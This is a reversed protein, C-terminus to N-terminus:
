KIKIIGLFKHKEDKNFIYKIIMINEKGVDRIIREELEVELKIEEGSKLEKKYGEFDYFDATSAKGNRYVLYSADSTIYVSKDSNNKITYKMKHNKYDKKVDKIEINKVVNGRDLETEADPFEFQIGDKEIEEDIKKEIKEIRNIRNYYSKEEINQINLKYLGLIMIFLFLVIFMTIPKKLIKLIKNKLLGLISIILFEIKDVIFLSVVPITAYFIIIKIINIIVGLYNGAYDIKFLIGSIFIAAIFVIIDLVIYKIYFKIVNIIYQNLNETKGRIVEKLGKYLNNSVFITFYYMIFILSSIILVKETSLELKNEDNIKYISNLGIDTIDKMTMKKNNIQFTNIGIIFVLKFISILFNKVKKDSLFKKIIVKNNM